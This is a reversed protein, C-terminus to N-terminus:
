EKSKKWSRKTPAETEIMRTGPPEGLFSVDVLRKRKEEVEAQMEELTAHELGCRPCKTPM